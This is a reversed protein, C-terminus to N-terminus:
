RRATQMELLQQTKRQVKVVFVPVIGPLRQYLLKKPKEQNAQGVPPVRDVHAEAAILANGALDDHGGLAADLELERLPRDHYGVVLYRGRGDSV